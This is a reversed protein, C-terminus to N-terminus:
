ASLDGFLLWTDTDIKRLTAGSYKARLKAGPTCNITVGSGSVTVQGDGIQALDVVSGIPFAVSSNQPVALAIASGNSLTVLKSHDSLALTYSTGVQANITQAYADAWKLGTAEGSAAMLFLGNAGVTLKAATDSGTGVALDGKADWITDTSVTKPTGWKIGTAEGSAATLVDGNTGVSVVSASDNGTGVALDGKANWITDTSVSGGGGGGAAEIVVGIGDTEGDDSVTITVNAGEILNIRKQTGALDGNKAVEVMAVGDITDTQPDIATPIGSDAGGLPKIKGM